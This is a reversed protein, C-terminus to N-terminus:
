FAANKHWKWKLLILEDVCACFARRQYKVHHRLHLYAESSTLLPLTNFILTFHKYQRMNYTYTVLSDQASSHSMSPLDLLLIFNECIFLNVISTNRLRKLLHLNAM